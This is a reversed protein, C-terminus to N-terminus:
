SPDAISEWEAGSAAPAMVWLTYVGLATGFPFKLLALVAAIIALTRGWPKRNLLSWGVFASLAVSVVTVVAIVPILAALLGGHQGWGNLGDYLRHFPWGPGGLSRLTVVRLVLIGIAAGIVRYLAYVCWMVGLTQLNPQVRPRPWYPMGVSAVPQATPPYPGAAYAQQHSAGAVAPAAVAAGCRPCFNVGTEVLSGCMLCVM